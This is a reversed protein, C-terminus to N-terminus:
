FKSTLGTRQLTTELHRLHHELNLCERIEEESLHQRVEPDSLLADLFPINEDWVRAANRQVLQYAHERSLGKRILALMVHESYPLGKLLELNRRMQEPFVVL